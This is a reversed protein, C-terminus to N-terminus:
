VVIIDFGEEVSPNEFHKKYMSYAIKPVQNEPDRSKNRKYSDELSTSVHVCVIKYSHKRAFGIYEYRKKFSSNTADFVISKGESVYAGAAKIMKPSTKYVDGQILVFREDECIKKAVSSKGSGPYGVMIIVQKCDSLNLEPIEVVEHEQKVAFFEEPSYCKLCINEAFVKDSDAFDGKRGLADGVFFSAAKDVKASGVLVDYLIPNPKYDCKQRAIVVFIPIELSAAVTQIQLVKWDKSQNTFIVVSFGEDNLRKLEDPINPYLWQWDEVNSPFTKGDKPSVLTWDYDFAAIKAKMQERNFEADNTKMEQGNFYYISMAM